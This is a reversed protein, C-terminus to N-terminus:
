RDTSRDQCIDLRMNELPKERNKYRCRITEEGLKDGRIGIRVLKLDMDQGAAEIAREMIRLMGSCCPVEMIVVTISGPSNSRIIESLKNIYHEKDDLKPCGILCVKRSGKLFTRHFDGHAFATCDAAVLLDAGRLYPANVPILRLQVPWNDLESVVPGQENGHDASLRSTVSGDSLSRAISGPCGVKQTHDDSGRHLNERVVKEDYPEAERTEFSIAGQPCEGICDGLGDCYVDSVLRAKGEVM